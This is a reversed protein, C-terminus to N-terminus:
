KKQELRNYKEYINKYELSNQDLLGLLKKYYLKATDLKNNNYHYDALVALAILNNPSKSIIKKFLDITDESMKGKEIMIRTNAEGILLELDNKDIINGQQFHKLAGNFDGVLYKIQALKKITVINKPNQKLEKELFLIMKNITDPKIKQIEQISINTKIKNILSEGLWYNSKILYIILTLFFIILFYTAIEIINRKKLKNKFLYLVSLISTLFILFFILIM